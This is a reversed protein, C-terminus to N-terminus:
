LKGLANIAKEWVPKDFAILLQQVNCSRTHTHTHTHTHIHTRARVCTDSEKFGWPSYGALSRQGHFKGSVFVPTPQWKRRWPSKRVWPSFGCRRRRRCQWASEKGGQWRPLGCSGSTNIFTSAFLLSVVFFFFFVESSFQLHSTWPSNQFSKHIGLFRFPWMCTYPM